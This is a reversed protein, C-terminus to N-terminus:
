RSRLANLRAFGRFVAFRQWAVRRREGVGVRAGGRLLCRMQAGHLLWWRGCLPRSQGGFQLVPHGPAAAGTKGAQPLLPPDGCPAVTLDQACVVVVPVAVRAGLRSESSCLSGSRRRPVAALSWGTQRPPPCVRMHRPKLRPSIGGSRAALVVTSGARGQLLLAKENGVQLLLRRPAAGRRACVGGAQAAPRVGAPACGCPVCVGICQAPPAEGVRRRGGGTCRVGQTPSLACVPMRVHMTNAPGSGCAALTACRQRRLRARPMCRCTLLGQALVGSTARVQPTGTAWDSVLGIKVSAGSGAKSRLPYVYADLTPAARYM